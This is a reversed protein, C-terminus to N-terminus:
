RRLKITEILTMLFAIFQAVAAALALYWCWFLIADVIEYDNPCCWWEDDLFKIAFLVVVTATLCVSVRVDSATFCVSVRM